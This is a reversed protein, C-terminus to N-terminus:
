AYKNCPKVLFVEKNPYWSRSTGGKARERQSRNYKFIFDLHDDLKAQDKFRVGSQRCVLPLSAYLSQM